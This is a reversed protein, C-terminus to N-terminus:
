RGGLFLMKFTRHKELLITLMYTILLVGITELAVISYIIGTDSSLLPLIFNNFIITSIIYIGLSKRGLKAIIVNFLKYNKFYVFSMFLCCTSVGVFGIVYRYLNTSLQFFDIYPHTTRLGKLIGSGSIYIYDHVTYHVCLVVYLLFLLTSLLYISVKTSFLKKFKGMIHHKNWLYGVVFFPYMYVYLNIGYIGPIFLMVIWLAIYVYINDHLWRSVCLVIMSCYFIAWLFWLANFYSWIGEGLSCIRRGELLNIFNQILLFLSNWIFIPLLLKTFRSQLVCPFSYREITGSFLYGIIVMFLPMHFSYIIKHVIDSYFFNDYIYEKSYYEICHGYVVLIIAIGKVVDIYINRENKM